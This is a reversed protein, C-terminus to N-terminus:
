QYKICNLENKNKNLTDRSLIAKLLLKNKNNSLKYENIM